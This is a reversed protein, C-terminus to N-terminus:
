DIHDANERVLTCGPKVIKGADWIFPEQILDPESKIKEDHQLIIKRGFNIM